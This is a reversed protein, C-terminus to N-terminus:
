FKGELDLQYLLVFLVTCHIKLCSSVEAPLCRHDLVINLFFFSKILPRVGGADIM